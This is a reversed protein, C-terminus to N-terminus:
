RFTSDLNAAQRTDLTPVKTIGSYCYMSDVRASASTDLTVGCRDLAACLDTIRSSVFMQSCNNPKMDYKPKFNSDNWGSGYFGGQYDMRKGYNQFADWFADYEAKKGEEFGDAYGKEKGAGYVKYENEAIQTLKDAIAM